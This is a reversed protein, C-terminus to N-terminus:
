SNQQLVSSDNGLRAAVNERYRALAQVFTEAICPECYGEDMSALENCQGPNHDCTSGRCTCKSM